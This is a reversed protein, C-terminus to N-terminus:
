ARWTMTCAVIRPIGGLGDRQLHKSIQHLEDFVEGPEHTRARLEGFKLCKSLSPLTGSDDCHERVQAARSHICCLMAFRQYLEAGLFDQRPIPHSPQPRSKWRLTCNHSRGSNLVHLNWVVNETRTPLSLETFKMEYSNQPSDRTFIGRSFRERRSM